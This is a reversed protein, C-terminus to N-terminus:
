EIVSNKSHLISLSLIYIVFSSKHSVVKTTFAKIDIIHLNSSQFIEFTM